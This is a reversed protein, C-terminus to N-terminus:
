VFLINDSPLNYFKIILLIFNLMAAVHALSRFMIRYSVLSAAPAILFNFISNRVFWSAQFGISANVNVHALSSKLHTFLITQLFLVTDEMSFWWELKLSKTPYYSKGSCDLNYFVTTWNYNTVFVFRFLQKYQWPISRSIKPEM